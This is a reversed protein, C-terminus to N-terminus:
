DEYSPVEATCAWDTCELSKLHEPILHIYYATYEISEHGMYSSLYPLLNTVNRGDRIWQMIKHTAFNHRWDFIRPHYQKDFSIGAQKWCRWFLNQIYTASFNGGSSKEFFYVRSPLFKRIKEDYSQCLTTLDTSMAVIRDKNRKSNVILLTGETFDVDSVRLHRVEQPRLGCCYLVRFLVPIVYERMPSLKHPPLSDAAAFFAKLQDETYLYPLFSESKGVFGEPIVYAEKGISKLYKAFTRLIRTRIGLTAVKENPQLTCWGEAMEQTLITEEPHHSCCYTDFTHLRRAFTDKQNGLSVRLQLYAEMDTVFSSQFTYSM